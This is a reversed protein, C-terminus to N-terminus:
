ARRRRGCLAGALGILAAAGPGPVATVQTFTGAMAPLMSMDGDLASFVPNSGGSKTNNEMRINVTDTNAYYLVFAGDTDKEDQNAGPGTFRVADSTESSQM